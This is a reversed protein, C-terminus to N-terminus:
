RLRRKGGAGGPPASAPPEEPLLQPEATLPRPPCPTQQARPTLAPHTRPSLPTQPTHPTHPISTSDPIHWTHPTAGSDELHTHHICPSHPTQQTSAPRTLHTRHALPTHQHAGPSRLHSTHTRPRRDTHPSSGPPHLTRSTDLTPAKRILLKLHTAHICARSDTHSSHPTEGRHPTSVPEATQYGSDGHDSEDESIGLRPENM